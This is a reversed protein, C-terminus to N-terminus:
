QPDISSITTLRLEKSASRRISMREAEVIRDRHTVGQFTERMIGSGILMDIAEKRM